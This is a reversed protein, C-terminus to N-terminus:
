SGNAKKQLTRIGSSLPPILKVADRLPIAEPDLYHARAGSVTHGVLFEVAETDAGLRKLGSTFGYRFAHHPHGEWAAARVGTAKWIDTTLNSAARRVGKENAIVFGERVGWGALHQVLHPSIPVVRGKRESKTKGLEPRVTLTAAELDLDDWRLLLAQEVRLGTFRLVIGLKRRWAREVPYTGLRRGAADKADALEGAVRIFTDMEEWTPAVPPAYLAAPMDLYRPRQTDHRYVDSDYAWDWCRHVAGIRLRATSVSMGAAILAAWWAALTERDILDVTLRRRTPNQARVFAVFQALGVEYQVMTNPRLTRKRDLIFDHVLGGVISEGGDEDREVEALAPLANQHAPAWRQGLAIAREVDRQLIKATALDPAKRSRQQRDPDRWRVIYDDGRKEISAM